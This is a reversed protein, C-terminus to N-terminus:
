AKYEEVYSKFSRFMGEETGSERSFKFLLLALPLTIVYEFSAMELHNRIPVFPISSSTGGDILSTGTDESEGSHLLYPSLYRTNIFM